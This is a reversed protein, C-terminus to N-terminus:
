AGFNAFLARAAFLSCILLGVDYTAAVRLRIYTHFRDFSVDCPDTDAIVLGGVPPSVKMRFATADGYLYLESGTTGNGTTLLCHRTEIGGANGPFNGNLEISIRAHRFGAATTVTFAKGSPELSCRALVNSADLMLALERLGAGAKAGASGRTAIEFMNNGSMDTVKYVGESDPWLPVAVSCENQGPVVLDPCLPADTRDSREAPPCGPAPGPPLASGMPSMLAADPTNPYVGSHSPTGRMAERLPASASPYADVQTTPPPPVHHGSGPPPAHSYRPILNNRHQPTAHASSYGPKQVLADNRPGPPHRLHLTDVDGRSSRDRGWPSDPSRPAVCSILIVMVLALIVVAMAVTSGGGGVASRTAKRAMSRLAGLTGLSLEAGQQMLGMMVQLRVPPAPTQPTAAPSAPAGPALPAGAAPPGGARPVEEHEGMRKTGAVAAAGSAEALPEATENHPPPPSVESGNADDDSEEATIRARGSLTSTQLM